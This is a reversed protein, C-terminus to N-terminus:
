RRHGDKRIILAGNNPRLEKLRLLTDEVVLERETGPPYDRYRKDEKTIFFIVLWGYDPMWGKRPLTSEPALGAREAMVAEPHRVHRKGM